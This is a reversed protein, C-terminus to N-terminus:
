KCCALFKQDALVLFFMLKLSYIKLLLSLNWHPVGVCYGCSGFVEVLVNFEGIVDVRFWIVLIM